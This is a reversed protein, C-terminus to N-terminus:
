QKNTCLSLNNSKIQIDFLGKNMKKINWYNKLLREESLIKKRLLLIKNYYRYKKKKFCILVSKMYQIWSFAQFNKAIKKEYDNFSNNFLKNNTNTINNITKTQFFLNKVIPMNQNSFKQLKKENVFNNLYIQSNLNFSPTQYLDQNTKIKEM